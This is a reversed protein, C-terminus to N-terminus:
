KNEVFKIAVFGMGVDSTVVIQNQNVEVRPSILEAELATHHTVSVTSLRKELGPQPQEFFFYSDGPNISLPSSYEIVINRQEGDPIEATVGIIKKNHDIYEMIHDDSVQNDNISISLLQVEPNLYFRIYTKYSGFPWIKSHSKNDYRIQRRHTVSNENITVIHNVGSNIYKNIKNIGINSEVQYIYDTKCSNAFNSPCEPQIMSGAWGLQAVVGSLKPDEFYLLTQRDKLSQYFTSLVGGVEQDNAQSLGGILSNLLASHFNQDLLQEKDEIAYKELRSYLNQANVTDEYGEVSLNGLEVLLQRVQSYNIAILGDVQQSLGERLFWSINKASSSFDPDWNADRLHLRSEGLFTEIEPPANLKGLVRQDISSVTYVQYDIIKGNEIVLHAVAQLFGGTPRLEQDDQLLMFYNKKEDVALLDALLPSLQNIVRLKNVSSRVEDSLISLHNGLDSSFHASNQGELEMQLETLKTLTEELHSQYNEILQTIQYNSDPQPVDQNDQNDLSQVEMFHGYILRSDEELTRTLQVIDRLQGGVEDIVLSNDVLKVDLIKDLLTAQWGLATTKQNQAVGGDRFAVINNILNKEARRYNISLSVISLGFVLGGFFVILGAFFVAQKNKSKRKIRVIISAKKSRRQTKLNTRESSFLRGVRDDLNIETKTGLKEKNSQSADGVDRQNIEKNKSSEEINEKLQSKNQTGSASSTSKTAQAINKVEVEQNFAENTDQPTKTEEDDVSNKIGTQKTKLINKKQTPEFEFDTGKHKFPKSLQTSLHPHNGLLSSLKTPDVDMQQLDATQVIEQVIAEHDCGIVAEVIDEKKELRVMSTTDLDLCQLSKNLLSQFFLKTKLCLEETTLGQGKILYHSVFSRMLEKKISEFYDEVKNPYIECQPDLLFGNAVAQLITKYPHPLPSDSDLVDLGMLMKSNEGNQYIYNILRDESSTQNKWDTCLDITSDIKSSLRILFIKPTPNNLILNLLKVNQPDDLNFPQSFNLVVVIKYFQNQNLQSYVFNHSDDKNLPSKKVAIQQQYFFDSVLQSLTSDQAVLLIKLDQDYSETKIAPM